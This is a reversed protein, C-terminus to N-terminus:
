GPERNYMQRITEIDRASLRYVGPQIAAYMIDGKYPSHGHMGLAHGIEHLAIAKLQQSNLMKGNQTLTMQIDAQILYKGNVMLEPHELGLLSPDNFGNRWHIRINARSESSTEQFRIRGGIANAWDSFADAVVQDKLFDRTRYDWNPSNELADLYYYVTVHDNFRLLRGGGLISSVYDSSMAWASVAVLLCASLIGLRIQAIRTKM